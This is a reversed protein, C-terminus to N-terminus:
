FDYNRLLSCKYKDCSIMLHAAFLSTLTFISFHSFNTKQGKKFSGRNVRGVNLMRSGKNFNRLKLVEQWSVWRQLQREWNVEGNAKDKSPEAVNDKSHSLHWKLFFSIFERVTCYEQTIQRTLSFLHSLQFVSDGGM